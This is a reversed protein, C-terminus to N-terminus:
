GLVLQTAMTVLLALTPVAREALGTRWQRPRLTLTTRHPTLQYLRRALDFPGDMGFEQRVRYRNYGLSELHAAIEYPDVAELCLQNLSRALQKVPDASRRERGTWCPPAVTPARRSLIMLSMQSQEMGICRSRPLRRTSAATHRSCSASPSANSRGGRGAAGLEAALAPNALIECLADALLDPRSPPVLRGVEGLGEAVGGVRTAVVPRGVMMAEIVTYPFGESVSSLVVVDGAHYGQYVPSIPGEFCVSDGIGMSVVQQKLEEVYAENGKPVPGFLRLLADPQRQKVRVFANLLTRLDKLPDTRGVWVITPREHAETAAAPLTAPDVGNPIVRTCEPRACLQLQWQRNFESVSTVIDAESYLLYSLAVYFRSRMLKRAPTDGEAGFSLYRERLYVGHDTLIMPMHHMRHALWAPIGALGTSVAHVADARPPTFLLPTLCARLWHLATVMEGVRPPQPLHESLLAHLRQLSAPRDFLDWIDHSTGLLALSLMGEAFADPDGEMFGFFQEMAGDFAAALEPGPRRLGERRRWISLPEVVSVNDPIPVAPKGPRPGTVALVKFRYQPLGGILQNCWTTVGGMVYPYCGETTLLIRNGPKDAEM